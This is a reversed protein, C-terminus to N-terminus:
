PDVVVADERIHMSEKKVNQWYYFSEPTSHSSNNSKARRLFIGFLELGIWTGNWEAFDLYVFEEQSFFYSILFFHM